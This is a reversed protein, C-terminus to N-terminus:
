CIDVMDFPAVNRGDLTHRLKKRVIHNSNVCCDHDFTSILQLRPMGCVIWNWRLNGTSFWSRDLWTKGMNTACIQITFITLFIVPFLADEVTGVFIDGFYWWVKTFTGSVGGFLGVFDKFFLGAWFVWGFPTLKTCWLYMCVSSLVYERGNQPTIDQSWPQLTKVLSLKEVNQPLGQRHRFFM